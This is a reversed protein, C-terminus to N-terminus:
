EFSVSIIQKATTARIPSAQESVGGDARVVEGKEAKGDKEAYVKMGESVAFEDSLYWKEQGDSFRVKVFRHTKKDKIVGGSLSHIM